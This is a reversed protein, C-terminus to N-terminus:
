RAFSVCPRSSPFRLRWSEQEVTLARAIEEQASELDGKEARLIARVLMADTFRPSSELAESLAAIQEDLSLGASPQAKEYLQFAEESVEGSQVQRLLRLDDEVVSLDQDILLLSTLQEEADKYAQKAILSMALRHACLSVKHHIEANAGSTEAGNSQKLLDAFIPLAERFDRKAFLAEGLARLLPPADPRIALAQRLPLIAGSPDGAEMRDLAKELLPLEPHSSLETEIRQFLAAIWDHHQLRLVRSFAGRARVIRRAAFAAAGLHVWANVWYPNNGVARHLYRIAVEPRGAQFFALGTDHQLPAIHMHESAMPELRRLRVHPDDVQSAEELVRGVDAHEKIQAVDRRAYLLAVQREPLSPDADRLLRLAVDAEDLQFSQLALEAWQAALFGCKPHRQCLERLGKLRDPGASPLRMWLAYARPTISESQLSLALMLLDHHQRQQRESMQEYLNFARSVHDRLLAIQILGVAVSEANPTVESAKLFAAEAEELEGRSLAEQGIEVWAQMGHRPQFWKKIVDLLGM